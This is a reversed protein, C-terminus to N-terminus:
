KKRKKTIIENEQELYIDQSLDSKPSKKKTKAIKILLILSIVAFLIAAGSAIIIIMKDQQTQKQMDSVQKDYFRQVTGNAKDYQYFSEEGNTTNVGYLLFNNDDSGYNYVTLLSDNIKVSAREYGLPIKTDSGLDKLYLNIGNITTAKYLTYKNDKANYLYLSIEGKENRLGVVTGLKKNTCALVDEEGMKITTETFNTPIVYLGKKRVVTYTTNDIKVEIPTLEKVTAVITYTKTAGNEATIVVNINNGGEAVTIRGIGSISSKSDTATANVNIETTNAKAEATYSTVDASFTPSLTANDISLTSLNNNTSKPVVPVITITKKVTSYSISGFNADINMDADGRSVTIYTSGTSLAKFKLTRSVSSTGNTADDAEGQITTSGSVLKLKSSTYSVYFQWYFIKSGTAKITVSFTDGVTVSSSSSISFSGTAANAGKMGYAFSVFVLLISTLFIKLAKKM